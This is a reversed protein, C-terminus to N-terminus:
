EVSRRGLRRDFWSEIKVSWGQLWLRVIAAGSLIGGVNAIVDVADRTRYGVIGQCIEIMVGFLALGALVRWFVPWAFQGGYWITLTAFTMAHVWKDGQSWESVPLGGPFFLSSPVLAAFFVFALLLLGAIRWQTLYRLPLM